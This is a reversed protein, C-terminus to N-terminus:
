KIAAEGAKKGWKRGIEALDKMYQDNALQVNKTEILTKDRKAAAEAM